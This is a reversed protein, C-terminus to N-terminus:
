EGAASGVEPTDGVVGASEASEVSEAGDQSSIDEVSIIEDLNKRFRPKSGFEVCLFNHPDGKTAYDFLAYFEEKSIERGIEQHIADLLKEDRFGWICQMTLNNRIARSLVGTQSKFSQLAMFITLGLRSHIHRHKICLNSMNNKVKTTQNFLTSSMCDDLVLVMIPHPCRGYKYTPSQNCDVLGLEVSEFLLDEDVDKRKGAIFQKEQKKYEKWIATHQKWTLWLQSEGEVKDLIKSLSEQTAEEYIDDPDVLDEYMHQNSKYTPCVLFIRIGKQFHEKYKRLLTTMACTKGSSRVGYFGFLGHLKPLLDPVHIAPPENGTVIGFNKLKKSNVKM